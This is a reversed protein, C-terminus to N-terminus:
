PFEDIGARGFNGLVASFAFSLPFPTSGRRPRHPPIKPKPLPQRARRTLLGDSSPAVLGAAESSPIVCEGRGLGESLENDTADMGLRTWLEEFQRQYDDSSSHVHEAETIFKLQRRLRRRAPRPGGRVRAPRRRLRDAAQARRVASGAPRRPNLVAIGTCGDNLLLDEYDYLISKLVPLDIHERYLDVHGAARATTAPKWCWTSRSAWRTSCTWSCTSCTRAAHRRGDAGARQTKTQEDRYVDHRYGQRPVVQLDYSPRVADTLM